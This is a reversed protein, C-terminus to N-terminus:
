TKNKNKDEVLLYEAWEAVLLAFFSADYPNFVGPYPNFVGSTICWKSYPSEWECFANGWAEWMPCWNKCIKINMGNDPNVGTKEVVYSCCPCQYVYDNAKTIEIKQLHPDDALENWIRATEKLAENIDM